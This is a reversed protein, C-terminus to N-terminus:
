KTRVEKKGIDAIFGIASWYVLFVYIVIKKNRFIYIWCIRVRLHSVTKRRNHCM